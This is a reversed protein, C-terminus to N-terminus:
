SVGALVHSMGPRMKAGTGFRSLLQGLVLSRGVAWIADPSLTDAEAEAIRSEKCFGTRTQVRLPAPSSGHRETVPM